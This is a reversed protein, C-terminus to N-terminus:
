QFWLPHSLPAFCCRHSFPRPLLCLCTTKAVYLDEAGLGKWGHECMHANTVPFM